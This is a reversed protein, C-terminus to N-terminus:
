VQALVKKNQVYGYVSVSWKFLIAFTPWFNVPLERSTVSKSDSATETYKTKLLVM